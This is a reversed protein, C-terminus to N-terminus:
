HAPLAVNRLGEVFHSVFRGHLKGLRKRDGEFRDAWVQAGTGTSILQANVTVTEGVRRVDGELAYGVGLERGLQQVDIAKGKYALAASHAIVFSGPLRSLDTTLDDTLGDAFDDEEPDGTLNAFPTVVISLHTADALRANLAAPPPAPSPPPASLEHTRWVRTAATSIVAAVILIRLFRRRRSKRDVNPAVAPSASVARARATAKDAYAAILRAVSGLIAVVAPAVAAMEARRESRDSLTVVGGAPRIAPPGGSPGTVAYARMPRAINKLTQEGMDVFTEAIKDRVQRYADESLCIGGPECVGELRAAVNVGDGMLDGDSEEVVDGLHVGIRFVIRTDADVGANREVMGSQIERACRVAEVVSRFEAIVGDGTGKVVRGNHIAVTPDVFEGRLTRLRALTGEEDAEALRSYGVIDAVLIAALKRTESM